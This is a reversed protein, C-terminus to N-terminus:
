PRCGARIVAGAGQPAYAMFCRPSTILLTTNM